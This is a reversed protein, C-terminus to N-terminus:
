FKLALLDKKSLDKYLKSYLDDNFNIMSNVANEYKNKMWNMKEFISRDDTNMGNNILAKLNELYQANDVDIGKVFAIPASFYDIYQYGDDDRNTLSQLYSGELQKSYKPEHYIKGLEMVEDEVIIRPYKAFKEMEYAKVFGPGYLYEKSHRIEGKVIAGRCIIGINIWGIIIRLLDLLTTYVEHEKQFNFSIIISDSFQTINKMRRNFDPDNEYKQIRLYEKPWNLYKEIEEYTKTKILDRFGLIDIFGIIREQYM